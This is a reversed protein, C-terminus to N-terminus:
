TFCQVPEVAKDGHQQLPLLPHVQDRGGGLWFQPGAVDGIRKLKQCQCRPRLDPNIEARPRPKRAHHDGARERIHRSGPHVQDFAAGLLRSEQAFCDVGCASGCLDVRDPKFIKDFVERHRHVNHRRPRQRGKGCRSAPVYGNNFVPRETQKGLTLIYIGFQGM